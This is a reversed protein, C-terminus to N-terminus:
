SKMDSSCSSPASRLRRLLFSSANAAVLGPGIQQITPGLLTGRRVAEVDAVLTSPGVGMDRSVCLVHDPPLPPLPFACRVNVLQSIIHESQYHDEFGHRAGWERIEDEPESDDAQRPAYESKSRHLLHKVPRKQRETELGDRVEAPPPVGNERGPAGSPRRDGGNSSADQDPSSDGLARFRSTEGNTTANSPLSGHMDTRLTMEAPKGRAAHRHNLPRPQSSSESSTATLRPQPPPQPPSLRQSQNPQTLIVTM